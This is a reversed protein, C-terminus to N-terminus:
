ASTGLAAFARAHRAEARKPQPSDGLALGMWSPGSYPSAFRAGIGADFDFREYFDPDGVVFVYDIGEEGLIGVGADILASGVGRYRRSAEVAVPALAAASISRAGAQVAMRSFLVHGIVEGAADAVLSLIADGDEELAVVLRAEAPTPFAAAHLAYIADRDEPAARRLTITM